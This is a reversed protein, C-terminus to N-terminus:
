VIVEDLGWSSFIYKIKGYNISPFFDKIDISILYDNKSHLNVLDFYSKGKQSYVCSSIVLSSLVKILRKQAIKTYRNPIFLDRSKRGTTIKVLYSKVKKTSIGEVLINLPELQSQPLKLYNM